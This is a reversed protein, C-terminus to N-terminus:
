VISGVMSVKFDVSKFQEDFFIVNIFARPKLPFAESQSAQTSMMSSIGAPGATTLLHKWQYITATYFQPWYIPYTNKM